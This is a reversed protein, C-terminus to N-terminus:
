DITWGDMIAVDNPLTDLVNDSKRWLQVIVVSIATISISIALTSLKQIYTQPSMAVTVSKTSWVLSGSGIPYAYVYVDFRMNGSAGDYFVCPTIIHTGVSLKVRQGSVQTGKGYVNLGYLAPENYLNIPYREGSGVGPYQIVGIPSIFDVEASTSIPYVPFPPFNIPPISIPPTNYNSSEEVPNAPIAVTDGDSGSEIQNFIITSLLKEIQPDFTYSLTEPLFNLGSFSIGRVTDNANVTIPYKEQPAIDFNRYSSAMHLEVSPYKANYQAFLDGVIQNLEAQSDLALGQIREVKGRYGPTVGPANALLAQFSTGDFSVGGAEVFSVKKTSPEDITPEGVWDQKAITFGTQYISPEIWVDREAWTKGQRDCVIKGTFAGSMLTGIADFLSTRDADFYQIYRDDGKFEFDNCLLATSHWRLYHYLARRIDMNLVVVWGSPDDATLATPDGYRVSVSFGETLKMVESPSGVEFEVWSEKYNYTITDGLVYGVFFTSSRNIGNGGISQRTVLDGYWDDSFIVVLSGDRLQSEPITQRIRINATYGGQARSGSLDLLEWDLIPVNTGASPRNYISVHRFSIDSSSTGSVILRTTYQGPTNYAVYGPTHSSSGTPTGGEFLWHYSLAESKLNSTGSASYYVQDETFGAYHPGMCIFTGLVTNQNTYAVDYDKYWLTVTDDAPDQIIRPYIPNIEYFNVATLYLDNAWDIHSNEAITLVTPTSSRVRVTGKDFAGPTTGVYLTMGSQINQYSGATVNDFTITRAGKAISVDNVQCALAITPQYISLYLKTAQAPDRLKSLQTSTPITM